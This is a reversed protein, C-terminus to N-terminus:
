RAAKVKEGQELLFPQRDAEPLTAPYNASFWRNGGTAEWLVHGLLGAVFYLGLQGLRKSTSSPPDVLGAREAAYQLPAAVAVFSFGVITAETPIGKRM